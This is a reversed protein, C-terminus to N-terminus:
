LSGFLSGFITHSVGGNLAANVCVLKPIEVKLLMLSISRVCKELVLDLDCHGM